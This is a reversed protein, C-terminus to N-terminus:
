KKEDKEEKYYDEIKLRESEWYEEDFYDTLADGYYGWNDVGGCDLANLEDESRFAFEIEILEKRTVKKSLEKFDM